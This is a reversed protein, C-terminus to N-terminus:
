AQCVLVREALEIDLQALLKDHTGVGLRRDEEASEALRRGVEALGLEIGRQLTQLRNGINGRALPSLLGLPGMKKVAEANFEARSDLEAAKPRLEADCFDHVAAQWMRQEDTLEIDM